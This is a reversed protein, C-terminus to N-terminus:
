VVGSALRYAVGGNWEVGLVNYEQRQFVPYDYKKQTPHWTKEYYKTLSISVVQIM